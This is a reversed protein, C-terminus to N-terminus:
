SKKCLIWPAGLLVSASIAYPIIIPAVSINYLSHTMSLSAKSRTTFCAKLITSVRCASSLLYHLCFAFLEHCEYEEPPCYTDVICAQIRGNALQVLLDDSEGMYISVKKEPYKDLYKGMVKAAFTEGFGTLSGLKFVDPENIPVSLRNKIIESDAQVSQAYSRLLRGQDTLHLRKKEDYYFLKTGYYQELYKIHQTVAPQTMHLKEATKTYNKTECLELFTSLKYNLM